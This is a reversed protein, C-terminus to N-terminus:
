QEIGFHTEIADCVRNDAATLKAVRSCELVILKAFQLIVESPVLALKYDPDCKDVLDCLLSVNM